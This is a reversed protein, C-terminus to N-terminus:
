KKYTEMLNVYNTNKGEIDSYGARQVVKLPKILLFKFEQQLKMWYCDLSYNNRNQTTILLKLGTNLNEILKDYFHQRVIYAGTTYCRKVQIADNNYEQYPKFSNGSLMLVDWEHSWLRNIKKLTEQPDKFLVDDEFVAVYPLNKERANMIVQLHSMGCGVIGQKTQIAPFRNPTEIGVKKLEEECVFRRDPRSDLNIYWHFSNLDCM